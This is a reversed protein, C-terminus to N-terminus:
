SSTDSSVEESDQRSDSLSPELAHFVFRGELEAQELSERLEMM